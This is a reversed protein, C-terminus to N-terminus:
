HKKHAFVYGFKVSVYNRIGAIYFYGVNIDYKVDVFGVAKYINFTYNFGNSIYFRNAFSQNVQSRIEDNKFETNTVSLVSDKYSYQGTQATIIFKTTSRQLLGSYSDAITLLGKLGFLLRFKKTINIGVDM